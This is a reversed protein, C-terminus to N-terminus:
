QMRQMIKIALGLEDFVEDRLSSQRINTAADIALDLIEQASHECGAAFIKLAIDCMVFSRRSLPRIIRAEKISNQIMKRSLKEQGEKKFYISLYCFFIAERGRDAVSRVLRELTAVYNPHIGEEVMKESLSKIKVFQPTIEYMETYGMKELRYLRVEDDDISKTIKIAHMLMKKDHNKQHLLTYFEAINNRITDAISPINIKKTLVEAKKLLKLPLEDESNQMTLPVITLIISAKEYPSSIKDVADEMYNLLERCREKDQRVLNYIAILSNVYEVPEAIKKVIQLATTYWKNDPHIANLRVIAFVIQRRTMADKDFEVTDLQQIGRTLYKAAVTVDIQSYSTALYSLVLVKQYGESLIGLNIVVEELVQQAHDTKRLRVLLDALDCLGTLKIYPDNVMQLIRHMLGIVLPNSNALDNRRLLFALTEYPDTSNPHTIDENLSSIIRSLMADREYSNEIEVAYMALPIIYDLNNSSRSYSIIIDIIGAIKLSIQPTKINNKIIELGREFPLFITTYDKGTIPYQPNKLIICGIKVFCEAIREFLQVKLSPDKIDDAILYAKELAEYSQKDIAYKIVGDIINAMAYSALDKELLSNSWVTMRLLLDLDGQQAALMSAEDIISSLTASRTNQGDIECTLGVARQLFDRNKAKVGIKAIKIVINSIAREKLPQEKISEAFRILLSPDHLDLFGRDVLITISELLLHDQKPHLLILNRISLIHAILDKFACDKSVEIIARYIANNVADRNLKVLINNNILPISDNLIGEKLLHILCEAYPSHSETEHNIKGFIGLASNFDGSSLMIQSFQLYIRSLVLANCHGDIFPILGSLVQMDNSNRAVSIGARVMERIPYEDGHSLHQQLDMATSLFWPDGSREAKKLLDIVITGTVEPKDSCLQKLITIIQKKDKVRELLQETLASIIELYADHSIGAFNGIFQPIDTMEKGFVSKAGKEIIGSICDQRRIKQHITTASQIGEFFSARDKELIAITTLAKALEAHLIARKSIDGIEEILFLSTYLLKKSRTTIAWVILLPIIDIMIDSRYKRFSIRDLMSMGQDILEPAAESVGADILDRAIMAFVRSQNSKKSIKESLSFVSKLWRNDKTSIYQKIIRSFLEDLENSQIEQLALLLEPKNNKLATEIIIRNIETVINKRARRGQQNELGAVVSELTKWDEPPLVKQIDRFIEISRVM